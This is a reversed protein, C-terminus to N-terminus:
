AAFGSREGARGDTALWGAYHVMLGVLPLVISVDFHFLEAEEWERASARPAFALPLPLRAVSWGRLVMRM